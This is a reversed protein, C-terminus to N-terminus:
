SVSVQYARASGYGCVDAAAEGGAKRGRQIGPVRAEQAGIMGLEAPRTGSWNMLSFKFERKGGAGMGVNRSM